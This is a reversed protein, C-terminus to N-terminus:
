AVAVSRWAGNYFYIRNNNSDYHMAIQGAGSNSPVGTPAGACSPIMVYGDTAITALAVGSGLVLNQVGGGNAAGVRANGGAAGGSLEAWKTASAVHKLKMQVTASNGTAFALGTGTAEGQIRAWETAGANNYFGLVGFDDGSRARLFIGIAGASEAIADFGGAGRFLATQTGAPKISIGGGTTAIAPDGGNSGTVTVYRNTTAGNALVAFETSTGSQSQFFISGNGKSYFGIGVNTETGSIAGIYPVNGTTAGQMQWLNVASAVHVWKGQATGLPGTGFIIDGATNVSILSRMTSGSNNTFVISSLDDAARARAVLNFANTDGITEFRGSVGIRAREAAAGGGTSTIFVLATPPGGAANVGAQAYIM